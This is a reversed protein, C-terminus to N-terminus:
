YVKKCYSNEALKMMEDAEETSACNMRYLVGEPKLEKLLIPLDEPVIDIHILKGADQIKKLVPLWYSATPQGAGYVWQIGDLGELKLLSDLHRLAGPGDLHFITNKLFAIEEILEPEVFEKYMEESIMGMFDCSTVYWGQPHWVGMWNSNGRQKTSLIQNLIHYIEKFREFMMFNLKKVVEDEEFLDLCLKEPGRLSVLGDMGPHLDTIGVLYDGKSENVMTETLEITKQLWINNKELYSCNIDELGAVHHSAWSTDEGFTIGCGFYAGFIDPGLNPNMLPYAEGKYYSSEMIRREKKLVYETDLWREKLSGSYKHNVSYSDYRPARIDMLPRDHNEKDWYEMYKKEINEFNNINIM